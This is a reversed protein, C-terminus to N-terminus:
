ECAVGDGDRDLKRSYGPSGSYLPAAGAARVETCNAYYATAAPAPPVEALPAPPPPAQAASVASELEAVRAALQANQDVLATKEDGLVKMKEAHQLATAKLAAERKEVSTLAASAKRLQSELKKAESDAQEVEATLAAESARLEELEGQAGAAGAGSGLGLALLGAAVPVGVSVWRSRKVSGSEPGDSQPVEQAAGYM